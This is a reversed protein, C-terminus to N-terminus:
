KTPDDTALRCDDCVFDVTKTRKSKEWKGKCKPCNETMKNPQYLFYYVPKKLVKELEACIKMGIKSLQSNPDSLQKKSFRDSLCYMWIKDISKYVKQWSLISFHEEEEMIHKIKYLPIEHGCDGCVIPSENSAFDAYLMYWSPEKCSCCEGIDINEGLYDLKTEIDNLYKNTYISNFKPDLANKDPVTLFAFYDDDKKILQYDNLIQGNNYLTSLYDFLTEKEDEVCDNKFTITIRFFDAL